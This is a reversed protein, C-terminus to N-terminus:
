LFLLSVLFVVISFVLHLYAMRVLTKELGVELTEVMIKVQRVVVGAFALYILLFLLTGYKVLEWFSQELNAFSEM